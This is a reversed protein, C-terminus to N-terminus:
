GPNPFQADYAAVHNPFIEAYLPYGIGLAHVELGDPGMEAFCDLIQVGGEAQVEQGNTLRVRLSLHKQSGDRAAVISQQVTSYEPSPLFKGLAVDMPPDGLELDSHGILVSGALIEFRPM